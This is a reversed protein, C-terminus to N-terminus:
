PEVWSRRIVRALEVRKDRRSEHQAAREIVDHYKELFDDETIGAEYMCESTMYAVLRSVLEGTVDDYREIWAMADEQVEWQM